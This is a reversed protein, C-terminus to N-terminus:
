SKELGENGQYREGNIGRGHGAAPFLATWSAGITGAGIVAVSDIDEPLKAQQSM